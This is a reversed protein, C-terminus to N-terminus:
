AAFLGRFYKFIFCYEKNDGFIYIYVCIHIYICVCLVCVCVCIVNRSEGLNEIIILCDLFPLSSVSRCCYCAIVNNVIFCIKSLSFLFINSFVLFNYFLGWLLLRLFYCLHRERGDQNWHYINGSNVLIYNEEIELCVPFYTIRVLHSLTIHEEWHLRFPLTGLPVQLLPM